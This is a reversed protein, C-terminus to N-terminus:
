DAADEADVDELHVKRYNLLIASRSRVRRGEAWSWFSVRILGVLREEAMMWNMNTMAPTRKKKYKRVPAAWHTAEPPSLSPRSLALLFILCARMPRNITKPM